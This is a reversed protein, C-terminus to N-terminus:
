LQSAAAASRETASSPRGCWCRTSRWTRPRTVVYEIADAIDAAELMTIGAFRETMQDRIEPRNHEALETDVAGPESLSVRLHRGTGEQRLSECEPCRRWVRWHAQDGAREWCTPQM